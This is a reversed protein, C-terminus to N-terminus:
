VYKKCIDYMGISLVTQECWRWRYPKLMHWGPTVEASPHGRDTTYCLGQRQPWPGSTVDPQLGGISTFDCTTAPSFCRPVQPFTPKSMTQGTGGGIIHLPMSTYGYPGFWTISLTYGNGSLGQYSGVVVALSIGQAKVPWVWLTTFM